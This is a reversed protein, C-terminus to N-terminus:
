SNHTIFQESGLKKGKKLSLLIASLIRVLQDTEDSLPQLRAVKVIGIERILRLWYLSERAEKYAIYLKAVFDAKTQASQAEHVNAGVSTASRLLQRGLVRGVGDKEL